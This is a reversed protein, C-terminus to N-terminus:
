SKALSPTLTLDYTNSLFRTPNVIASLSNAHPNFYSDPHLKCRVTTSSFLSPDPKHHHEARGMRWDSAREVKDPGEPKASRVVAKQCSRSVATDCAGTDAPLFSSRGGTM